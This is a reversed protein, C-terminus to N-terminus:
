FPSFPGQDKMVTENIIEGTELDVLPLATIDNSLSPHLRSLTVAPAM